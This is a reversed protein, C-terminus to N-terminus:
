TLTLSVQLLLRINVVSCPDDSTGADGARNTAL